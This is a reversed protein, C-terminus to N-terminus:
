NQTIYTELGQLYRLKLKLGSLNTKHIKMGCNKTTLGKILIGMVEFTFTYLISLLLKFHRNSMNKLSSILRKGFGCDAKIPIAPAVSTKLAGGVFPKM